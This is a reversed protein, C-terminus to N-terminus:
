EVKPFNLKAKDGLLEIAKKDYARGAEEETKFSGIPYRVKNVTIYSYWTNYKSKTVGKYKSTAKPIKSLVEKELDIGEYNEKPYTTVAFEKHYYLHAMDSLRTAYEKDEYLGLYITKDDTKIRVQWKNATKHWEV